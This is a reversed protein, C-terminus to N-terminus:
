YAQLMEHSHSGLSNKQGLCELSQSTTEPTLASSPPLSLFLLCLVCSPIQPVQTKQSLWPDSPQRHLIINNAELTQM